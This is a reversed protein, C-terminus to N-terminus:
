LSSSRLPQGATADLLVNRTANLFGSGFVSDPELNTGEAWENWANIFVLSEPAPNHAMEQAVVGRLWQEYLEPTAGHAFHAAPGLRPTNDWALMVGRHAPSAFGHGMTRLNERVVHEYDYALGSFGDVLGPLSRAVKKVAVHHPPFDVAADFGYGTVDIVDWFRVAALHIEGLGAARCEARWIETADRVDPIDRIRYVLLVPKGQYRVYRPDRLIPIVDSIFRRHSDPSYTQALLIDQDLGDWRRTWNENAWCILFPFDPQGSALVEALPRELIRRGNFWYYYYCFGHIGHEAALDAQAQRTEPTRLDYFGLEAPLRPQPHGDYLPRSRAVQTWETFSPGWWEDNEPIPHFQPLYFALLKVTREGVLAGRRAARGAPEFAALKQGAAGVSVPIARELAHALTGDVQGSEVEFDDLGLRLERLPQLASPRFWFMSGAFFNLKSEDKPQGM